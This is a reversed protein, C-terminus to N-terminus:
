SAVQQSNAKADADAKPKALEEILRDALWVAYDPSRDGETAALGALAQGAYYQRLTMGDHGGHFIAPFANSPKQTTM